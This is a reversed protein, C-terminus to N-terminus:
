SGAAFSPADAVKLTLKSLAREDKKLDSAMPDWEKVFGPFVESSDTTLGDDVTLRFYPMTKNAAWGNILATNTAKFVLTLAIEGYNPTGPQQTEADSDLNTTDVEKVSIKNPTIDVLKALQTWTSNADPVTDSVCYEVSAKDGVTDKAM